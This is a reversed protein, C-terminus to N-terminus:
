RARHLQHAKLAVYLNLRTRPDDLDLDVLRGIREIRYRLTNRHTYLKEAADAVSPTDLYTELSQLLQMHHEDDYRALTQIARLYVNDNLTDPPLHWLWHLMGLDDFRVLGERQGMSCAVDVAEVAQSHSLRLDALHDIPQGAGVLLPAAPHSLAAVLDRAIQEGSVNRHEQLIIVTRRERAVVLAPCNGKLWREIQTALSMESAEEGGCRQAILAQYTRDFQFGLQHAREVLRSDPPDSYHLLQEFFDGRLSMAADYIARENHMILAAVTAAHEIALEDLDNLCQEGAIIWVYGMVRQGVLIPTVIREATMGLAPLAPVRISRREAVLRDYIGLDILREALDPPTRGTSVTRMRAEDVVGFRAAALIEFATNEIAISRKLLAALAEAVQQLTAGELVLNTLTRHIDEARERLAYQELIIQAHIAKTIEVFPVDPPLEIIPFKLRDGAERMTDPTRELHHGVSLVMGALQREVLKPILAQQRDPAGRLGVGATLLLEGGRAWEYKAEPLDVIHVWLIVNDLGQAGAIVTAQAFIPMRLADRVSLM